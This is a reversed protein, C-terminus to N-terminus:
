HGGEALLPTLRYLAINRGSLFNLVPGDLSALDIAGSMLAAAGVACSGEVLMRGNEAYARIAAAIAKESVAIVTEVYQRVIPFTISGEEIGGALGDALTTAADAGAAVPVIGGEALSQVMAPWAESQVGIIRVDPDVRKAWTAVGSILGGGGVPVLILAPRQPVDELAELAATGQGACIAPDNYPSVFVRKSEREIHRARREADDYTGPEFLLEVSYRRLAAVKVPSANEPLVIHASVGLLDCAYALGLAHNGASATVVGRAREADSLSLIANLAGRVKFSGTHQWLDLKEYVDVGAIDSLWAAREVPTRRVHPSIRRYAALVDAADIALDDAPNSKLNTRM